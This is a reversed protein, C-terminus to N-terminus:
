KERKRRAYITLGILGVGIVAVPVPEPNESHYMWDQRQAYYYPAPVWQVFTWGPAFGLAARTLASEMEAQSENTVPAATSFIRYMAYQDAIMEERSQAGLLDQAIWTLASYNLMSGGAGGDNTYHITPLTPLDVLDAMWVSGVTGWNFDLTFDYATRREGNITITVPGVGMGEQDFMTWGATFTIIAGANAVASVLFLLAIRALYSM